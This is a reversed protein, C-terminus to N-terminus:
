DDTFQRGRGSDAEAFCQPESQATKHLGVAALKYKYPSYELLELSKKDAAQEEESPGARKQPQQSSLFPTDNWYCAVSAGNRSLSPSIAQKELHLLACNCVVPVFHFIRNYSHQRSALFRVCRMAMAECIFSHIKM